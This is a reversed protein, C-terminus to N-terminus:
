CGNAVDAGSKALASNATQKGKRDINQRALNARIDSRDQANGKQFLSHM